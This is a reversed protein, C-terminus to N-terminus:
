LCSGSVLSSTSHIPSTQRSVPRVSLVAVASYMSLENWRLIEYYEDNPSLLRLSITSNCDLWQLKKDGSTMRTRNMEMTCYDSSATELAKM